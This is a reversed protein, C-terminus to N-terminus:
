VKANDENFINSLLTHCKLGLQFAKNKKSMSGFAYEILPLTLDGSHRKCIDLM